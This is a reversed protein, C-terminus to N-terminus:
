NLRSALEVAIYCLTAVCMISTLRLTPGWESIALRVLKWLPKLSM